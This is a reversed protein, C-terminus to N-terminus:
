GACPRIGKYVRRGSLTQLIREPRRGILEGLQRPTLPSNGNALFIRLVADVLSLGSDIYGPEKSCHVRLIHQLGHVQTVEGTNQDVWDIREDMDVEATFVSRHTDCLHARLEYSLNLNGRDWWGYEVHFPTDLTPKVLAPVL